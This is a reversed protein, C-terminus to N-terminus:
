ETFLTKKKLSTKTGPTRSFSLLAQTDKGAIISAAPTKKVAVSSKKTSKVAETIVVNPTKTLNGDSNTKNQDTTEQSTGCTVDEEEGDVSRITVTLNNLANNVTVSFKELYKLSMKDKVVEMMQTCLTQLDKLNTEKDKPLDLYNLVRGLSRVIFSNPNSLIENCIQTAIREHNPNEPKQFTFNLIQPRTLEILLDCVNSINVKSLPSSAPANSLIKVVPLFSDALLEQNVMSESAFVPLLTGLCCRLHHDDESVPNFWLLILRTLVKSAVIRGSLLLKALGEAAVTRIECVESDLHKCLLALMLKSGSNGKTSEDAVTSEELNQTDLKSESLVSSCSQNFQYMSGQSNNNNQSESMSDSSSTSEFLELGFVLLIDFIAKLATVKVEDVEMEIHCAQLFINLYQLATDKSNLCCLSLCKLAQNRVENFENPICPLIINELLMEITPAKLSLKKLTLTEGIISLCKLLTEADDKQTAVEEVQPKKSEVLAEHQEELEKLSAKVSAAGVFDEKKVLEELEDRLEHTKIRLSAIKLDISRKEDDDLSHEVKVTPERIESILDCVYNLLERAEPKLDSLRAIICRIWSDAIDDFMIVNRFLKLLENRTAVDSVDMYKLMEILQEGIFENEMRVESATEETFHEDTLYSKIYECFVICNPLIKELFEEGEVGVGQVHKCLSKWYIVKECTLEERPILLKEDLLTFNKVLEDVPFQLYLSAVMGECTELSTVVDVSRLLELLDGDCARLWTQFLRNTCIKKVAVSKDELGNQALELRQAVSLARINVKESIVNFAQSRVTENIDKTRDLIAQFSVASPALSVLIARRVGAYSDHALHFLYAATVLCEEDMPDQLRALALVAQERVVPITDKIRLLMAASLRSWVSDDLLADGIGTLLKTVLQCCRYRIARSSCEHSALIFDFVKNLLLCQTFDLVEEEEEEGEKKEPKSGTEMKNEKKSFYVIANALFTITREVVPEREFKVMPFKMLHQLDSWFDDFQMNDYVKEMEKLLKGHGQTSHQCQTLVSKMSEMPNTEVVATM